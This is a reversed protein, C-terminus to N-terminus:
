ATAALMLKMLEKERRKDTGAAKAQKMVAMTDEEVQHEFKVLDERIEQV